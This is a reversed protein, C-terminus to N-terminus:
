GLVCLWDTAAQLRLPWGGVEDLMGLRGVQCHFATRAAWCQKMLAEERHPAPQEPTVLPRPDPGACCCRTGGGGVGRRRPGSQSDQECTVMWGVPKLKYCGTGRKLFLAIRRRRNATGDGTWQGCPSLAVMCVLDRPALAAQQRATGPCEVGARCVDAADSCPGTM